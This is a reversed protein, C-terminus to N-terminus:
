SHEVVQASAVGSSTFPRSTATSASMPSVWFSPVLQDSNKPSTSPM